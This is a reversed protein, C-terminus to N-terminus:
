YDGGEPNYVDEDYLPTDRSEEDLSMTYLKAAIRLDNGPKFYPVYVADVDMERGDVSKIRKGSVFRVGLKGFGSIKVYEGNKIVQILTEICSDIVNEVDKTTYMVNRDPITVEFDASSGMDDSIRFTHKESQVPKKKEDVRIQHAVLKIFEAKNM